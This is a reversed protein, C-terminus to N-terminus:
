GRHRRRQLVFAAVGLGILAMTAPEPVPTVELFKDKSILASAGPAINLDWEFAWTVNGVGAGTVDNLTVPNVGNNLEGLTQNFMAAEGHNAPPVVTTEELAMTGKVQFADNFGRPTGSLTV